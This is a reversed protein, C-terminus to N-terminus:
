RLSKPAVGSGDILEPGREKTAEGGTRSKHILALSKNPAALRTRNAIPSGPPWPKPWPLATAPRKGNKGGGRAYETLEISSM